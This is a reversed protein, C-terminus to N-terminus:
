VSVRRSALIRSKLCISLHIMSGRNLDFESSHFGGLMDPAANGLVEGIKLAAEASHSGGANDEFGASPNSGVAEIGMWAKM